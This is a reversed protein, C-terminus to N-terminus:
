NEKKGKEGPQLNTQSPKVRSDFDEGENRKEIKEQKKNPLDDFGLFIGEGNKLNEGNKDELVDLVEKPVHSCDNLGFIYNEKAKKLGVLIALEEKKDNTDIFFAQDYRQIKNGNEDLKFEMNENEGGGVNSHNVGDVTEFNHASNKFDDLSKFAMITFRSRGSAGGSKEAGDKSIYIWGRKADGILVAQHGLGGAGKSNGLVIVDNGNPDFNRIPNCLSINFPSWGYYKEAMLDVGMWKGVQADYRRAGFDQWALAFDEENEKGNFLWRHPNGIQPTGLGQLELGYPYYHAEQIIETKTVKGDGNLDSYGLRTNGLHDTYYYEYRFQGGLSADPVARGEATFFFELTSNEYVYSGVYDTVQDPQSPRKIM